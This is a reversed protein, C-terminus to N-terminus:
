NKYKWYFLLLCNQLHDLLNGVNLYLTFFQSLLPTSPVNPLECKGVSWGQVRNPVRTQSSSKNSSQNPNPVNPPGEFDKPTNM